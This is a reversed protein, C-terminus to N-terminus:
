IRQGLYKVWYEIIVRDFKEIGDSLSHMKEFVRRVDLLGDRDENPYGHHPRLFLLQHANELATMSDNIRGRRHLEEAFKMWCEVRYGDLPEQFFRELLQGNNSRVVREMLEDFDPPSGWDDVFLYNISLPKLLELEPDQGDKKMVLSSWEPVSGLDLTADAEDTESYPDFHLPSELIAESVAAVPELSSEGNDWRCWFVRGQARPFYLGLIGGSPFRCIPLFRLPMISALKRLSLIEDKALIGYQGSRAPAKDYAEKFEDPFKVGLNTEIEQWSIAM